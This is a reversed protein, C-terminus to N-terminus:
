TSFWPRGGVSCASRAAHKARNDARGVRSASWGVGNASAGPASVAGPRRSRSRVTTATEKQDRPARRARADGRPSGALRGCLVCQVSRAQRPQRCPWSAVREVGRRQGFSRQTSVTSQRRSLSRVTTAAEKEGRPARRACAEDPSSGASQGCLVQRQASRAHRPQRRPWSAARVVERLQGLSRAVSVASETPSVTAEHHRTDHRELAPARNHRAAECQRRELRPELARERQM